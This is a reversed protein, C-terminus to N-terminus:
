RSENTPQRHNRFYNSTFGINIISGGGSKKLLPIAAKSCMFTGTLNIKITKEWDNPDIDELKASPGSVGANNILADLNGLKSKAERFFDSVDSENSVDAQVTSVDPCDNKLRKLALEDKDCVLVNSGNKVLTKAMEAGIGSGAATIIIKLDKLHDM